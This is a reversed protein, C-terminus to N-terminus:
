QGTAFVRFKHEPLCDDNRVVCTVNDAPGNEVGNLLRKKESGGLLWSKKVAV